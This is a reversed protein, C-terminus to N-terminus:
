ICQIRVICVESCADDPSFLHRLSLPEQQWAQIGSVPVKFQGRVEMHANHVCLSVSLCVHVYVCIGVHLSFLYCIFYNFSCLTYSLYFLLKVYFYYLLWNDMFIYYLLVLNTHTQCTALSPFAFPFFFM